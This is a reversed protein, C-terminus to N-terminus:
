SQAASEMWCLSSIVPAHEAIVLALSMTIHLTPLLLYLAAFPRAAICAPNTALLTYSSPRPLTGCRQWPYQAHAPSCSAPHLLASGMWRLWAFGQSKELQLPFLSPHLSGPGRSVDDVM